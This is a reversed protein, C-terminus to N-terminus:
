PIIPPNYFFKIEITEETIGYIDDQLPSFEASSNISMSTCKRLNMTRVPIKRGDKLQFLLTVSEIDEETIKPTCDIGTNSLMMDVVTNIDNIPDCNLTDLWNSKNLTPEHNTM